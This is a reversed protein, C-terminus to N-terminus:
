KMPNFGYFDIILQERCEILFAETVIVQKQYDLIDVAETFDPKEYALIPFGAVLQPLMDTLFTKTSGDKMSVERRIYGLSTNFFAKDFAEEKTRIEEEVWNENFVIEANEIKYHTPYLLFDDYIVEEIYAKELMNVILKWTDYEEININERQRNEYQYILNNLESIKSQKKDETIM